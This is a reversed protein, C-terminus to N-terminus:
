IKTPLEKMRKEIEAIRKKTADISARGASYSALTGGEYESYSEHIQAKRTTLWKRQETIQSARASESLSAIFDHFLIYLKADYLFAVNSVTYNKPQQQELEALIEELQRIPQDIELEWEPLLSSQDPQSTACGSLLVVIGVFAVITRINMM